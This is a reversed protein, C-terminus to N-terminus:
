DLDIGSIKKQTYSGKILGYPSKRTETHGKKTNPCVGKNDNHMHWYSLGGSCISHWRDACRIGGTLYIGVIYYSPDEQM